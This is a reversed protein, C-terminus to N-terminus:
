ATLVLEDEGGRYEERRRRNQAGEALLGGEEVPQPREHELGRGEVRHLQLVPAADGAAQQQAVARAAVRVMWRCGSGNRREEGLQQPM